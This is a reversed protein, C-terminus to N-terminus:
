KKQTTDVTAQPQQAAPSDKVDVMEIEFLLAEGPKFPSGQPPNQGYALTGPIYLVGKGGKKFLKLGEDWGAIANRTGLQFTYPQRGADHSNEFIKEDSIKKGVYHVTVVKGSDAQAGTGPDQVVVYTGTGTKQATIKKSALWAELEKSEKALTGKQKEFEAAQAKAMEGQRDTNAAAEDAFVDTVKITWVLRDGSKMFPPMSGPPYKKMLTDVLQVVILSDGKHLDTFLESVDYADPQGKTVPAYAPMNGYSSVLLSDNLKQTYHIKLISGEKAAATSAKTVYKYMLGSKTKKYNTDGCATIATIAVLALVLQTLKKM